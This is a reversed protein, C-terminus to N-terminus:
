VFVTYYSNRHLAFTYKQMDQKNDVGECTRPLVLSKANEVFFAFGSHTKSQVM